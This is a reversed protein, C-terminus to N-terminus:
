KADNLIFFGKYKLSIINVTNYEMGKHIQIHVRYTESTSCAMDESHFKM